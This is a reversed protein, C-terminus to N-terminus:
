EMDIPYSSMQENKNLSDIIKMDDDSLSFDFLAANESIRLPNGSKPITVIGKQLNWRLVIQAVSKKHKAAILFLQPINLIGGQMLPSWAECVIQNDSCFRRLEGRTHYPHFEIQNVMPAIEGSNILQKLHNINFNSVGIAKVAGESYLKELARWTETFIDRVPWHILYLDIYELNLRKLSQDFAKLTHQFGQETNWVKSTVFVEDRQLGSTRVASGVGEENAYFSATDIHRYGASLAFEIANEVQGGNTLNYVGLGLYPMKVGNHLPTTGNIDTIIM